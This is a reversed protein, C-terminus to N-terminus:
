LWRDLMALRLQKKMGQKAERLDSCTFNINLHLFQYSRLCASVNTFSEVPDVIARGSEM